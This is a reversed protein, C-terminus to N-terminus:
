VLHRYVAAKLETNPPLHGALELLIERAELAKGTSGLCEAYSLYVESHKADGLKKHLRMANAFLEIAVQYNNQDKFDAAAREYEGAAERLLGAREAHYAISRGDAYAPSLMEHIAKHLKRRRRVPIQRYTSERIGDHRFGLQNDHQILIGATILEEISEPQSGPLSQIVRLALENPIPRPFLALLEATLKVSSDLRNTKEVLVDSVRQPLDNTTSEGYRACEELFLPNGVGNKVIWSIRDVGTTLSRAMEGAEKPNLARLSIPELEIGPLRFTELLLRLAAQNPDTRYTLLLRLNAGGSRLAVQELVHSTGEDAWHIDEIAIIMSPDRKTMSLLTGALDAVLKERTLNLESGGVDFHDKFDPLLNTLSYAFGIGDTRIWQDLQKDRRRFRESLIQLLPEFERNDRQYSRGVMFHGQRLEHRFALEEVMRTKGTGADGEITIIRIGSGPRYLIKKARKLEDTRGSLPARQAPTAPVPFMELLQDFANVRESPDKAILRSVTSSLAETTDSIEILPAAAAYMCKHRLLQGDSDEFINRGAYVSYLVAGLSYFESELTAAAGALVEPACFSVDALNLYRSNLLPIGGDLLKLEGGSVWLNSPKLHGHIVNASRLMACASILLSVVTERDMTGHGLEKGDEYWKRVFYPDKRPTRGACDIRAILPHTLGHYWALQQTIDSSKQCTRHSLCKVVVTKGSWRDEGVFSVANRSRQLTNIVEFRQTLFRQIQSM